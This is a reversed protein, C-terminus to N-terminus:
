EKGGGENWPDYPNFAPDGYHSYEWSTYENADNGLVDVYGKQVLDNKAKLLAEGSTTNEEILYKFYLYCLGPANRPEYASVLTDPAGDISGMATRTAAIYIAMGHGMVEYTFSSTKSVTPHDVSDICGLSCSVAFFVGPNMDVLHSSWLTATGEPCGHDADMAIFNSKAFDAALMPGSVAQTVIVGGVGPVGVYGNTKAQVSDDQADFKFNRFMQYVSLDSDPCMHETGSGFYTLANNNWDAGLLVNTGQDADSPYKPNSIRKGYNSIRNWYGTMEGLNRAIIRGVALEVTMPNNDLDGYLNDSPTGKEYDRWIGNGGYEDVTMYTANLASYDGVLCVFTPKVGVGQLKEIYKKIGNNVSTSNDGSIIVIGDHHVAFLPAFASLHPTAVSSSKFDDPNAVAIYDLTLGKERGIKIMFDIVDEQTELVKGSKYPTSGVSIVNEPKIGLEALTGDTTSGYILVPANLVCGIQSALVAGAYNNVVIANEASVWFSTAIISSLTSADFTFPIQEESADPAARCKIDIGRNKFIPALLPVAEYNYTAVSKAAGNLNGNLTEVSVSGASTGHGQETCVVCFAVLDWTYTIDVATSPDELSAELKYEEEMGNQLLISAGWVAKVTHANIRAETSVPGVHAIGGFVLDASLFAEVFSNKDTEFATSFKKEIGKQPSAGLLASTSGSEHFAARIESKGIIQPRVVLERANLDPAQVNNENVKTIAVSHPVDAAILIEYATGPQATFTTEGLSFVDDVGNGCIHYFNTSNKLGTGQPSNWNARSFTTYENRPMGAPHISAYGYHKEGAGGASPDYDFSIGLESEESVNFMFRGYTHGELVFRTRESVLITESASTKERNTTGICGAFAGGVMALVVFIAVIRAM